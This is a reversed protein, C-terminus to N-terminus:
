GVEDQFKSKKEGFDLNKKIDLQRKATGVYIGKVRVEFEAKFGSDLLAGRSVSTMFILSFFWLSRYM